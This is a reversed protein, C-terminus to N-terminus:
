KKNCRVREGDPFVYEGDETQTQSLLWNRQSEVRILYGKLQTVAAVTVGYKSQLITHSQRLLELENRIRRLECWPCPLGRQGQWDHLICNLKETM